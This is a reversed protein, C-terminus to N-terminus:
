FFSIIGKAMLLFAPLWLFLSPPTFLLSVLLVFSSFIDILSLPEGRFVFLGKLLLIGACFLIIQFYPHAGFTLMLFVVAALLDFTGLIRVMLSM